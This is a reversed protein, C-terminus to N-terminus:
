TFYNRVKIFTSLNCCYLTKAMTVEIYDSRYLSEFHGNHTIECLFTLFFIYTVFSFILSLEKWNQM